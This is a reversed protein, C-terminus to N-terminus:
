WQILIHTEHAYTQTKTRLPLDSGRVADIGIALHVHFEFGGCRLHAHLTCPWLQDCANVTSSYVHSLWCYHVEGIVRVPVQAPSHTVGRDVVVYTTTEHARLGSKM